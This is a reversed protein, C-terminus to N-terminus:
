GDGCGVFGAGECFLVAERENEFWVVADACCAGEFGGCFGFEFGDEGDAVDAVVEDFLEDFAGDVGVVSEGVAFAM